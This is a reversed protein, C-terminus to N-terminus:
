KANAKKYVRGSLMRACILGFVFVFDVLWVLGFSCFVWSFDKWLSTLDPFPAM